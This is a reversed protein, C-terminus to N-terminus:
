SSTTGAPSRLTTGSSGTTSASSGGLSIPHNNETRTPSGQTARRTHLIVTRSALYRYRYGAFDAAVTPEKAVWVSGDPDIWGAGTADGGRTDIM